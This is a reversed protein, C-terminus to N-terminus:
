SYKKIQHHLHILDTDTIDRSQRIYDLYAVFAKTESFPHNIKISLREAFLEDLVNTRLGHTSRIHELYHLLMKDALNRNNRRSYYLSGVTETFELSTNVNPPIIPVYRQRRKSEFVLYCILLLLLILFAYKIAPIRLLKSWEGDSENQGSHYYKGYWYIHSPEIRYNSLLKELYDKNDHQRLFYNTLVLPNSCLTLSGSMNFRILNTHNSDGCSGWREINSAKASDKSFYTLLPGGTFQYTYNKQNFQIQIKQNPYGNYGTFDSNWVPAQPNGIQLGRCLYDSFSYACVIVHNGNVVYNKLDEWALSDLEFDNCAVIM